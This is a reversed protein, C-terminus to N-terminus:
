QTAYVPLNRSSVPASLRDCHLDHTRPLYASPVMLVNCAFQREHGAPLAFAIMADFSCLSHAVQGCPVYEPLAAFTHSDHWLVCFEPAPLISLLSQLHLVPYVPTSPAADHVIHGAPWYLFPLLGPIQVAQGTSVYLLIAASEPMAEHLDHGSRELVVPLPLVLM